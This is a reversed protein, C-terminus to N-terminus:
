GVDEEDHSADDGRRQRDLALVLRRVREPDLGLADCVRVFSFPWGPDTAAFWARAEAVARQREARAGRIVALADTLLALMLRKEPPLSTM